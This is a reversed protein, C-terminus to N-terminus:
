LLGMLKQGRSNACVLSPSLHTFLHNRHFSNPATAFTQPHEPIVSNVGSEKGAMLCARVTRARTKGCGLKRGNGKPGPHEPSLSVAGMM